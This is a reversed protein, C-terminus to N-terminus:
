HRFFSGDEIWQILNLCLRYDGYAVAADQTALPGALQATGDDPRFGHKEQLSDARRQLAATMNSKNFRESM